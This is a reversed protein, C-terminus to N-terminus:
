LVTLSILLCSSFQKSVPVPAYYEKGVLMEYCVQEYLLPDDSVFSDTSWKREEISIINSSFCSILLIVYIRLTCTKRNRFSLIKGFTQSIECLKAFIEGWAFPWLDCVIYLTIGNRWNWSKGWVYNQNFM